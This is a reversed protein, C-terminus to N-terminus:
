ARKYIQGNKKFFKKEWEKIEEDLRAEDFLCPCNDRQAHEVPDTVRWGWCDHINWSCYLLKYANGDPLDGKHRRVKRNAYNKDWRCNGHRNMPAFNIIGRKYSKAM